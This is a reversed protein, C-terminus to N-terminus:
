WINRPCTDGYKNGLLFGIMIEHTNGTYTKLRTTTAVEYSYSVNINSVNLGVMASYGGVLNSYRYSAGIWLLDTYLLKANFHVGYLQPQWYQVMVSPTLNLDETLLIRYGATLFYNPTFTAGYKNDKVFKNKGPIINLVSLGAFYKGSYLWLGAGLEPKVKKLEGNAYGIAPDDPNLSAFDIKSRDLSISSVGLNFGAALTTKAGLPKHYAYTAYVSWRDIYGARDNLVTFGVGHHPSPAAYQDWYTNGRPNQGHVPLSTSSTRLDEKGIPGHISFYATTPAGNIGTWQNRYSLKIDTYNEIGAVAPNLIYNNLIYQTYSPKAQGLALISINITLILLSIKKM